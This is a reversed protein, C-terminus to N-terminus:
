LVIANTTTLLNRHFLVLRNHRTKSNREVKFTEFRFLFHHRAFKLGLNIKFAIGPFSCMGTHEGSACLFHIYDNGPIAKLFLGLLLNLHRRVILHCISNIYSYLRSVNVIRVTLNRFRPFLWKLHVGSM